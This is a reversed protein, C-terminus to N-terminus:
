LHASIADGNSLVIYVVNADLGADHEKAELIALVSGGHVIKARYHQAGLRYMEAKSGDPLPQIAGRSVDGFDGHGPQEVRGPGAPM